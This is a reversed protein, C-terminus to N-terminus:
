NQMVKCYSEVMAMFKVNSYTSNGPISEIEQSHNFFLLGSTM